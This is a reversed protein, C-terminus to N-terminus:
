TTLMVPVFKVPAVATLKPPVAAVVKVTTLAVLMLAVTPAPVEPVTDTVVADPVPVNAPKVYRGGGVIVDNLGVEAPVPCVTVIVPVLKVPVVATLKPPVAAAENVTTLAVLIVATTPVPLDPM